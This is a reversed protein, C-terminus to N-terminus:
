PTAAQGTSVLSPAYGLGRLQDLTEEVTRKARDVSVRVRISQGASTDVSEWYADLGAGKLQRQLQRAHAMSDVIAVEVLAEDRKGQPDSKATKGAATQEKSPLPPIPDTAMSGLVPHYPPALKTVENRIYDYRDLMVQHSADEDRIVIPRLFVMTQTKIRERTDYRFLYGLLPISSLLPVRYQNENVQDQIM